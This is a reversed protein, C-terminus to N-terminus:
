HRPASPGTAPDLTLDAPRAAGACHMAVRLEWVFGELWGVVADASRTAPELL